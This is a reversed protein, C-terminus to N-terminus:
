FIKSSFNHPFVNTRVISSRLSIPNSTIGSLHKLIRALPSYSMQVVAEILVPIKKFDGDILLKEFINCTTLIELFHVKLTLSSYLLLLLTHWLYVSKVTNRKLLTWVSKWNISRLVYGTALQRWCETHSQVSRCNVAGNFSTAHFRSNIYHWWPALEHLISRWM